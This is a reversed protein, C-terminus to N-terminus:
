HNKQASLMVGYQALRNCLPKRLIPGLLINYDNYQSNISELYLINKNKNNYFMFVIQSSLCVNASIKKM